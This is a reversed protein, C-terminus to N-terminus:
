PADHNGPEGTLVDKVALVGARILSDLLIKGHLAPCPLLTLIEGVTYQGNVRSLVFGELPSFPMKTVEGVPLALELIATENLKRDGLAVQIRNELATALQQIERHDQYKKRLNQLSEYAELLDGQALEDEGKKLLVRWSHKSFGPIPQDGESPPAVEFFGQKVGEFVFLMVSFEAVRAALAIKEISKEGNIELLIYRDEPGLQSEDLPRLVRPIWTSSPIVPRMRDIEDKRRVGEMVLVDVSLDLPVFQKTPLINDLFRFEGEEWLFLELITEQTKVLLIHKLEDESLRGIITLMEGLLVGHKNQMDLLEELETEEIIGWGVLYYSLFEKPSDSAAAVVVGDRFYIKKTMRVGDVVLTGTKRSQSVWQLLDAFPM